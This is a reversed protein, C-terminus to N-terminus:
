VARSVAFELEIVKPDGSSADVDPASVRVLLANPYVDPKGVPILDVDTGQDSVTTRWRGVVPLLRARIPRDRENKFPRSLVLNATSPRGALKEPHNAGGDWADTTDSSTDGGTKTGWWGPLGAVSVLSQSKTATPDM